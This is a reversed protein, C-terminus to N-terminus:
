TDPFVFKISLLFPMVSFFYRSILSDTLILCTPPWLPHSSLPHSSSCAAALAWCGRCRLSSCFLWDLFSRVHRHQEWRLSLAHGVMTRCFSGARTYCLLTRTWGESGMATWQWHTNGKLSFSSAKYIIRETPFYPGLGLGCFGGQTGKVQQQRHDSDIEQLSMLFSAWTTSYRLTARLFQEENFWLLPLFVTLPLFCFFCITRSLRAEVENVSCM